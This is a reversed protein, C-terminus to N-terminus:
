PIEFKYNKDKLYKKSLICKKTNIPEKEPVKSHICNTSMKMFRFIKISKM